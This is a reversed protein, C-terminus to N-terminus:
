QEPFLLVARNRRSPPWWGLMHPGLPYRQDFAVVVIDLGEEERKDLKQSLIDSCLSTHVMKTHLLLPKSISKGILFIVVELRKWSSSDISLSNWFSNRIVVFDVCSFSNDTTVYSDLLSREQSIIEYWKLTLKEEQEELNISLGQCWLRKKSFGWAM